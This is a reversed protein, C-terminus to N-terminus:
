ARPPNAEAADVVSGLEARVAQAGATDPADSLGELHRRADMPRGAELAALVVQRGAEVVHDQPAWHGVGLGLAEAPLGAERLMRVSEAVALGSHDRECAGGLRRMAGEHDDELSLRALEVLAYWSRPSGAIEEALAWVALDAARDRAAPQQEATLPDAPGAGSARRRVIEALATFAEVDNPDEILAARLRDERPGDSSRPASSPRRAGVRTVPTKRRLLSRLRAILSM